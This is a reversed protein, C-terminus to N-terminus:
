SKNLKESFKLFKELLSRVKESTKEDALQDNTTFAHDAKALAFNEPYVFAGLRDLSTKIAALSFAAGYPGPSAGMLLVPKQDFCHLKIRSLWDIGNKLIGPTSRNYEPSVIILADCSKIKQNLNSVIEPIGSNEEIDGDYLPMAFDKLDLFIAEHKLIELIKEVTRGLKKNLSAQRISGPLIAIKM